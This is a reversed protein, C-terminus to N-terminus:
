EFVLDIYRILLKADMHAQYDTDGMDAVPVVFNVKQGSALVTFYYASGKRIYLLTAMPKEKYLAKKVENIEMAMAQKEVLATIAPNGNEGLWDTIETSM